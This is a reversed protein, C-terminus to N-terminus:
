KVLEGDAVAAFLYLWKRDQLRLVFRLTEFAGTELSLRGWVLNEINEGIEAGPTTKQASFTVRDRPIGIIIQPKFHNPNSPSFFLSTRAIATLKLIFRM